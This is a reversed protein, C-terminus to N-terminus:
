KKKGPDDEPNVYTRKFPGMGHVQIETDGKAMAFHHHNAPVSAVSHQPLTQMKSEDFKDGMGVHLEGSLVTVNETVPHWHPMVKTGDPFKLRLVFPGESAPDGALVAMQTGAPLSSAPKWSIKDPTVIVTDEFASAKDKSPTQAFALIALLFLVPLLKRM